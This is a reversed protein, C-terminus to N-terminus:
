YKTFSDKEKNFFHVKTNNVNRKEKSNLVSQEQLVNLVIPLEDVVTHEGHHVVDSPVHPLDGSKKLGADKLAESANPLRIKFKAVHTIHKYIQFIVDSCTIFNQFFLIYLFKIQKKDANGTGQYRQQMFGLNTSIHCKKEYQNTKNLKPQQYIKKINNTSYAVKLKHQKKKLTLPEILKDKLITSSSGKCQQWHVFLYHIDRLSYINRDVKRTGEELYLVIVITIPINLPPDTCLKYTNELPTALVEEIDDYKNDEEALNIIIPPHTESADMKMERDWDKKIM